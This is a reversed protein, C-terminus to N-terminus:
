PTAFGEASDGVFDFFSLIKLLFSISHLTKQYSFFFSSHCHGRKYLITWLYSLNSPMAFCDRILTREPNPGRPM